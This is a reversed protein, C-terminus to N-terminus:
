ATGASRSTRGTRRNRRGVWLRRTESSYRRDTPPRVCSCSWSIWSLAECSTLRQLRCPIENRTATPPPRPHPILVFCKRIKRRMTDFACGDSDIAVFREYAEEGMAALYKIRERPMGVVPISTELMGEEIAIMWTFQEQSGFSTCFTNMGAEKMVRLHRSWREPTLDLTEDRIFCGFGTPEAANVVSTILFAVGVAALFKRM